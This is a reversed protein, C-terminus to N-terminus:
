RNTGWQWSMRTRKGGSTLEESSAGPMAESSPTSESPVTSEAQEVANTVHANIGSILVGVPRLMSVCFVSLYVLVLLGVFFAIPISAWPPETRSTAWVLVGGLVLGLGIYGHLPFSLFVGSSLPLPGDCLVDFVVRMKGAVIGSYSAAAFVALGCIWALIDRVTKMGREGSLM